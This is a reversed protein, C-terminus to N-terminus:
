RDFNPRRQSQQCRLSHVVDDDNTGGPMRLDDDVNYLLFISVLDCPEHVTIARHALLGQPVPDEPLLLIQGLQDPNMGDLPRDDGNTVIKDSGLHRSQNPLHARVERKDTGNM